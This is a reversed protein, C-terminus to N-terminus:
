WSVKIREPRGEAIYFDKVEQVAEYPLVTMYWIWTDGNTGDLLEAIGHIHLPDDKNCGTAWEHSITTIRGVTGASIGGHVHVYDGVVPHPQGCWNVSLSRTEFDIAKLHAPKKLRGTKTRTWYPM